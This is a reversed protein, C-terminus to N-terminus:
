QSKDIYLTITIRTITDVSDINFAFVDGKTIATTWGSLSLDQYKLGGAGITPKNSGTISDDVTPPFNAYVDKWIDLVIAGAVDAELEVGTLTGNFPAVLFGKLGTTLASGGGDIIFTMASKVPLDTKRASDNAGDPAGLNTFKYGLMDLNTDPVINSLVLDTLRAPATAESPAGLDTFTHGQMDLDTDPVINSLVLDASRAPDTSSGPAPLNLIRYGGMNLNTDIQVKSLKTGGFGM